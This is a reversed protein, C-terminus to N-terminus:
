IIGNQTIRYGGLLWTVMPMLTTTIIELLNGHPVPIPEMPM